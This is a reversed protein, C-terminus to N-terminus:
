AAVPDRDPTPPMPVGHATLITRLQRLAGYIRSKVVPVPLRLARATESVTRGRFYGEVLVQRYEPHLSGVAAAVVDRRSTSATM